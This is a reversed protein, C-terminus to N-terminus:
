RIARYKSQANPLRGSLDIVPTYGKVARPITPNMMIEANKKRHADLRKAIQNSLQDTFKKDMLISNILMKFMYYTAVTGGVAKLAKLILSTFEQLKYKSTAYDELIKQVDVATM